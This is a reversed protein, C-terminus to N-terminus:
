PSEPKGGSVGMVVERTVRVVRAVRHGQDIVEVEFSTSVTAPQKSVAEVVSRAHGLVTEVDEPRVTSRFHYHMKWPGRSPPRITPEDYVVIVYPRGVLLQDLKEKWEKTMTM